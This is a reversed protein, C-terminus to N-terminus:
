QAIEEVLVRVREMEQVAKQMRVGYWAIEGDILLVRASQLEEQIERVQKEKFPYPESSLFVVDPRLRRLDELTITPYRGPLESGLNIWGFYTFLSDIYTPTGVAMYPDKWILYVVRWSAARKAQAFSSRIDKVLQWAKENRLTIAGLDLIAQQAQEVSEVNVVYVPYKQELVGIMEKTNEEKEAILLDPQLRDIVTYDVQKTGGVNQKLSVQPAPHICFRTRGVIQHSLGLAFLTETLSPCLSIIRKPEKPIEVLRGLHDIWHKM